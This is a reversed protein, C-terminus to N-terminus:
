RAARALSPGISDCHGGPQPVSPRGPQQACLGHLGRALWLAPARDGSPDGAAAFRRSRGRLVLGSSRHRVRSGREQRSGDGLAECRHEPDSPCVPVPTGAVAGSLSRERVSSLGRRISARAKWACFRSHSRQRLVRSRARHQRDAEIWASELEGRTTGSLQLSIGNLEVIPKGEILVLADAIAYPEPRYGHEKVTVEYSVRQARAIVQGRCRLRISAGKVPEYVVRSRGGIVGKAMLLIRLAGLCSQYMLTGPMVRDDVFHCTLFWDDPHIEAERSYVWAAVLRRGAGPEDRSAVARAAGGRAAASGRDRMSQVVCGARSALDGRRLADLEAAGLSRRAGPVLDVIQESVREARSDLDLKHPIIGRGADLEEATFFGACGDRMSLFAEGQVTAELRFRFLITQGQRFFEDIRIDYRIVDGECPLEGHFTVTADLLRYVALGRTEFDVGLYGCLLLDAQGAEIAISPVIRGADLYWAGPRVVHETVIRGSKMSRPVGALVLVRDVLMLPEDPLRVRTPFSDVPAYEPGLVAAASGVAFELCARRDLVLREATVAGRRASEEILELEFAVHKAILAASDNAVKLFTRHALATANEADVISRLVPARAFDDQNFAAARNPEGAGAAVTRHIAAPALAGRPCSLGLKASSGSRDFPRRREPSPSEQAGSDRSAQKGYLAGLDVPVREAILRGLVELMTLLPDGEARCASCAVHPRGGLIQSILRSCSGGPGAEVFVRVGDDYAREVLAPFDILGSAQAAIAEAASKRDVAYRRAHVGSYFAIGEPESTEVDHLDRYEPEVSRGISCHVTSVTPLEFFAYNIAAIVEEVERRTGGIVSEAATNKILVEVRRKGGIAARVREPSCPVIGAVWNVPELPPIDWM